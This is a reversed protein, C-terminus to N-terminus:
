SLFLHLKPPVRQGGYQCGFYLAGVTGLAENLLVYYHVQKGTITM